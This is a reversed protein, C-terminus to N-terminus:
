SGSQDFARDIEADKGSYTKQRRKQRRQNKEEYLPGVVSRNYYEAVAKKYIRCVWSHGTSREPEWNDLDCNCSNTEKLREVIESMRDNKM